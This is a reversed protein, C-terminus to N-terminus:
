HCPKLNETGSVEAIEVVAWVLLTSRAAHSGGRKKNSIQPKRGRGQERQECDAYGKVYEMEWKQEQFGNNQMRVCMHIFIRGPQEPMAEKILIGM